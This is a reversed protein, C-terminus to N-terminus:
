TVRLLDLIDGYTYDFSVFFFSFLFLFDLTVRLTLSNIYFINFFKGALLIQNSYMKLILWSTLLNESFTNDILLMKLAKWWDQWKCWIHSIVRNIYSKDTFAKVWIFLFNDLPFHFWSGLSGSMLFLLKLFSQKWIFHWEILKEFVELSKKVLKHWEFDQFICGSYSISTVGFPLM